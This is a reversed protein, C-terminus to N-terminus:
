PTSGARRKLTELLADAVTQKAEVESVFEGKNVMFEM